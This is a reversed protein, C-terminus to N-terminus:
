RFEYKGGKSLIVQKNEFRAVINQIAAWSWTKGTRSLIKARNLELNIQHITKKQSWLRHIRQLVPFERPDKIIKGEFYCFGFYPLAAQKGAKLPRKHTAQARGDRLELGHRKLESRIKNKSCGFLNAIDRLSSGTKYKESIIIADAASIRNKIKVLFTMFDIAQLLETLPFSPEGYQCTNSRYYKLFQSANGQEEKQNLLFVKM